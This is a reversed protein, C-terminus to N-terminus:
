TNFINSHAFDDSFDHHIQLELALAQRRSLWWATWPSSCYEYLLKVFIAFYFTSHNWYINFDHGGNLVKRKTIM